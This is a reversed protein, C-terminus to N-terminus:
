KFERNNVCFIDTKYLRYVLILTDIYMWIDIRITRGQKRIGFRFHSLPRRPPTITLMNRMPGLSRSNLGPQPSPDKLVIFIRLVSEKSASTFGDVGHRLIKSCTFFINPLIFLFVESPWIWWKRRGNRRSAVLHSSTHNGSLEPPRTLLNERDIDNWWPEGHEYITQPHVTPGITSATWLHLRVGDVHVTLWRSLFYIHRARALGKDVFQWCVVWYPREYNPIHWKSINSTNTTVNCIM